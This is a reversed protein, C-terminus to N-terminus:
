KKGGRALAAFAAADRRFDDRSKGTRYLAGGVGVGACCQLFLGMNDLNIGGVALFPMPVVAKLDRIYDAGVAGAPFLKLYDAGADRAIFAESATFCGPLSIMARAKTQRIVETITNPSIVFRGGAAAVDDVGQMTLVTGAGVLQDPRACEVALAICELARPTNLPIELLNIGEEALARCTPEVEEPLIGRLIAVLPCATLAAAFSAALARGATTLCEVM